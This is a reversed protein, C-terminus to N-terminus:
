PLWFPSDLSSEREEVLCYYEILNISFPFDAYLIFLTDSLKSQALKMSRM